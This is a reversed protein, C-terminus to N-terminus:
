AAAAAIRQERAAVRAEEEAVLPRMTWWGALPLLALAAFGVAWSSAAVFAGFGVGAGSSLARMVTQQLGIATGARERGSLEATATFALGNWSMTLVGAALLVPVLVVLPASVLAATAALALASGLGLRRLPAIRRGELDSRRGAVLRALAGGVQIAALAVAATEARVGRADHLFLVVFSVIAVQACVLLASGTALRWVRRDRLPPPASVRPRDAPVPPPERIWIAAALAGVASTVALALLAAELGGAAAFLPLTLAAVAGGLPVAMQRIGLALGRQRRGFWGIVARGSATSAAGGLAGAVLLAALLGGYGDAGSAAVLAVAGGGLGLSIVIREGIRDALWGWLLLTAMIGWSSATLIVGVQSLTLHLEERLEPGLAPLGQQVASLAGQALVGVALIVYRYRM